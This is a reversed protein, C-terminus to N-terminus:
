PVTVSVAGTKSVTRLAAFTKKLLVEPDFPKVIYDVAGHKLAQAILDVSVHSSVFIVPIERTSPMSKIMNLIDFGSMGPMEIDLLILDIKTSALVLLAQEGSKVVKVEYYKELTNRITRLHIIIDDIALVARKPTKSVESNVM